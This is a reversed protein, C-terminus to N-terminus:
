RHCSALPISKVSDASLVILKPDSTEGNVILLNLIPVTPGFIQLEEQLDSSALDPNAPDVLIKVVKGRNTGIFLVDFSVGALNKAGQHLAIKTFLESTGSKVFVPVSPRSQVPADMLCHNKIFHLSSEPLSTSQNYCRGPRPKPVQLLFSTLFIRLSLLLPVQNSSMPLWNSTLSEQNKFNGEFSSEMDDVSFRCVASGLIANRPTTFVGYFIRFRPFHPINGLFNLRGLFNPINPSISLLLSEVSTM